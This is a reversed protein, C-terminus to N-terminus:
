AFHRLRPQLFRLLAAQFDALLQSEGCHGKCAVCRLQRVDFRHIIDVRHIAIQM